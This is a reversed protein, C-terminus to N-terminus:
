KDKEDSSNSEEDDEGDSHDDDDKEDDDHEDDDHEDDSGNDSPVNDDPEDDREVPTKIRNQDPTSEVDEEGNVELEIPDDTSLPEDDDNVEPDAFDDVPGIISQYSGLAQDFRNHLDEDGIELLEKEVERLHEQLNIIAEPAEAQDIVSLERLREEAFDLHLRLHKLRDDALDHQVGEWWLKIPYLPDGPLAEHASAVIIGSSGLLVVVLLLGIILTRIYLNLRFFGGPSVVQNAYQLFQSRGRRAAGRDREPTEELSKLLEIVEFHDKKEPM